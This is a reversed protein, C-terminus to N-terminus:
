REPANMEEELDKKQLEVRVQWDWHCLHCKEGQVQVHAQCWLPGPVGTQCLQEQGLSLSM